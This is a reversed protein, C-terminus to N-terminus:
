TSYKFIEWFFRELIIKGSKLSGGNLFEQMWYAFIEECSQFEDQLGVLQWPAYRICLNKKRVQFVKWIWSKRKIKLEFYFYLFIEGFSCLNEEMCLSSPEHWSIQMGITHLRTKERTECRRFCIVIYAFHLMLFCYCNSVIRSRKQTSRISPLKCWHRGNESGLHVADKTIIIRLKIIGSLMFTTKSKM